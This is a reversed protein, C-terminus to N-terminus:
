PTPRLHPYLLLVLTRPTCSMGAEEPTRINLTSAAMNDTYHNHNNRRQSPPSPSTSDQEPRRFLFSMVQARLINKETARARPSLRLALSRGLRKCPNETELQALLPPHIVNAPHRRCQVHLYKPDTTHALHSKISSTPCLVSAAPHLGCAQGCDSDLVGFIYVRQARM